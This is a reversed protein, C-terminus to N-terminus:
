DIHCIGTIERLFNNRQKNREEEKRKEKEKM